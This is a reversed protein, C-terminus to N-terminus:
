AAPDARRDGPAAHCVAEINNGDPDLVFAAYYHQHYHPRLGPRGNDVGGARTAAEFFRDVDERRDAVFAFHVPPRQAEGEHLWFSPRDRGYGGVKVGGTHEPPVRMVLRAGLPRLAEDYFAKAKDFDSVSIGSHDIM